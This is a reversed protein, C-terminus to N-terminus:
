DELIRLRRVLPIVLAMMLVLMVMSMAGAKGMDFFSFGTKYIHVTLTETATGPGGKTLMWVQDFLRFADTARILVAVGMVRSLLPITIRRIIQLSSAGDVLAAEYIDRPQGLIGALLIIAMFPTWQWVDMIIVGILSWKPDALWIPGNIGMLSLIYNIVGIQVDFILKWTLGVIVPTAALPLVLISRILGHGKFSSSLITAIIFGLILEIVVLILTLSITRVLSELFESNTLASVYNALGIFKVKRLQTLKYRRFSNIFAFVLPYATFGLVLLFAPTVFLLRTLLNRKKM